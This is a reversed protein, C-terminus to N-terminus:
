QSLISSGTFSFSMGTSVQNVQMDQRREEEWWWKVKNKKVEANPEVFRQTRPEDEQVSPHM